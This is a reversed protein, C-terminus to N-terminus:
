PELWGNRKDYRWGWKNLRMTVAQATLGYRKAVQEATMGSRILQEIGAQLIVHTGTDIIMVRSM